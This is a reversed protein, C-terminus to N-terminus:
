NGPHATSPKRYPDIYKYLRQTYGVCRDPMDLV